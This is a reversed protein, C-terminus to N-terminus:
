NDIVLSIALSFLHVHASKKACYSMTLIYLTDNALVVDNPGASIQQSYTPLLRKCKPQYLHNVLIM